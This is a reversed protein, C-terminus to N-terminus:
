AEKGGGYKVERLKRFLHIFTLKFFYGLIFLYPLPSLVNLPYFSLDMYLFLAFAVLSLELFRPFGKEDVLENVAPARGGKSGAFRWNWVIRPLLHSMGGFITFATFGYVLLDVHLNLASGILEPHSAIFGGAILGLPLFALATLFIRVVYPLPSPMRRNKILSYILYLFYISVGIELLSALAILRYEFLYFSALLLITSAQKAFFLKRAKRVNLTEMLLMPIWALEVGYVASLMAGVTLTHVALQFPVLGFSLNLFLFLSSLFLYFASAGLFKVTVPMWNKIGILVHFFFVGSALLLLGSAPVLLGGYALLFSALFVAFVLYSLWPLPLKRNQSNPVIQYMAGVLTSGIFGFVSFFAFLVLDSSLSRVLLSLILNILALLFFPPSVKSIYFM